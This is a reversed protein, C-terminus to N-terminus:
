QERRPEHGCEYTKLAAIAAHRADRWRRVTEAWAPLGPPPLEYELRALAGGFGDDFPQLSADVAHEQFWEEVEGLALIENAIAAIAAEAADVRGALWADSLHASWSPPEADERAAGRVDRRWAAVRAAHDPEVRALARVAVVLRSSLHEHRERFGELEDLDTAPVYNARGAAPILLEANGDRLM